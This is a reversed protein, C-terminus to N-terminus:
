QITKEGEPESRESELDVTSRWRESSREELEELNMRWSGLSESDNSSEDRQGKAEEQLEQLERWIDTREAEVALRQTQQRVGEVSQWIRRLLWNAEAVEELLEQQPSTETGLGPGRVLWVRKSPGGAQDEEWGRKRWHLVLNEARSVSLLLSILWDVIHDTLPSEM